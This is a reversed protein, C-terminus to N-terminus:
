LKDGSFVALTGTPVDVWLHDDNGYGMFKNFIEVDLHCKPCSYWHGERKDDREEIRMEVISGCQLCNTKGDVVSLSHTPFNAGIKKM